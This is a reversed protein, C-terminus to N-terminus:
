ANKTASIASTLRIFDEITLQEARVSIPLDLISYIDLIKERTMGPIHSLNNSLLKRRQHFSQRVIQEFEEWREIEYKPNAEFLLTASKVNPPPYFAGGSISMTKKIDFFCQHFISIPAWDKSDPTASIRDALEKQTTLVARRISARFRLMWELLPSTIDYPINGIIKFEGTTYDDAHITLFDCNIIEVNKYPKLKENLNGILDRDIEFSFLRAGSAAIIETLIGRGSGIEFITDEISINLLGVIKEAINRDTLFNQSFRRKPM